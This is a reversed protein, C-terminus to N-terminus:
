GGGYLGQPGLTGDARHPEPNRGLRSQDNIAWHCRGSLRASWTPLRDGRVTKLAAARDGMKRRLGSVVVEVVNSNGGTWQHGWVERPLEERTVAVGERRQLHRLVDVELRSLGVVRGDLALRRAAPDLVVPEDASLERGVVDSLWGDHQPGAGSHAGSSCLITATRM